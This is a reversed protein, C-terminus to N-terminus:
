GIIEDHIGDDISEFHFKPHQREEFLLLSFNAIDVLYEANGTEIFLDLRKRISETRGYKPKGRPVSGHGMRGYRFAGMLLRNRMLTEFKKSWETDKMEEFQDYETEAIGHQLRWRNKDYWAQERMQFKNGLLIM